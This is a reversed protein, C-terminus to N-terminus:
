GMPIIKLDSGRRVSVRGFNGKEGKMKVISAKRGTVGGMDSLAKKPLYDEPVTSIAAANFWDEKEEEWREWNAELWTKLEDEINEYLSRHYGFTEFKMADSELEQFNDIVYESGTRTDYFTWLYEKNILKFFVWFSLMSIIFLGFVLELLPLEIVDCGTNTTNDTSNCIITVISSSNNQANKITSNTDAFTIYLYVSIFCFLQNLIMNFCWYMGGLELLGRSQVILTFDVIAKGVLRAVISMVWSLTTPVNLFWRLEGRVIKYLFYLSM